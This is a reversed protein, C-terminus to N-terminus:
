LLTCNESMPTKAIDGKGTCIMTVKAGKTVKALQASADKDFSFHPSNFPNSGSQLVLYPAGMIDTNIDSVTGSVKFKKGKFQQDAAVTNAEYAKVMAAATVVPLSDAEQKAAEAKAQAENAAQQERKAQAAAKEEPSQNAGIIFGIVMLGIFGFVVWKLLKKM